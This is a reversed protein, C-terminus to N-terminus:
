LYFRYFDGKFGGLCFDLVDKANPCKMVFHFLSSKPPSKKLTILPNTNWFM